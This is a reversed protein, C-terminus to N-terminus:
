GELLPVGCTGLDHSQRGLMPLVRPGAGKLTFRGVLLAFLARANEPCAALARPVSAVQALEGHIRSDGTLLSVRSPGLASRRRRQALGPQLMNNTASSERRLHHVWFMQPLRM